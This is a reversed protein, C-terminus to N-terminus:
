PFLARRGAISQGHKARFEFGTERRGVGATTSHPKAVDIFPSVAAGAEVAPDDARMAYGPLQGVPRDRFSHANKMSTVIRRATIRIMEKEAGVAVVGGVAVCLASPSKISAVRFERGILNAIDAAAVGGSFRLGRESAGERDTL